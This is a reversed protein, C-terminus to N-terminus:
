VLGRSLNNRLLGYATSYFTCVTRIELFQGNGLNIIIASRSSRIIDLTESWLEYSMLVSFIVDPKERDVRRLFDRNLDAFNSYASKDWSDFLSVEHGLTRLAPLFNTFEYGEGRVPDGYNCRGFACLIKM